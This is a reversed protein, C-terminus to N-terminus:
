LLDKFLAVLAVILAVLAMVNSFMAAVFQRDKEKDIEKNAWFTSLCLSLSFLGLMLFGSLKLSGILSTGFSSILGFVKYFLFATLFAMALGILTLIPHLIYKMWERPLSYKESEKTEEKVIAKAVEEGLKEYDINVSLNMASSNKEKPPSKRKRRM